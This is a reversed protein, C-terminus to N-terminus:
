ASVDEHDAPLQAAMIQGIDLSLAECIAFIHDTTFSREAALRDRLVVRNIGTRRTLEAQSVRHRGMAARIEAAVAERYDTAPSTM